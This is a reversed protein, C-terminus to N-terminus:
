LNGSVKNSKNSAAQRATQNTMKDKSKLIKILIVRNFTMLVM